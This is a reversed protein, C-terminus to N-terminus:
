NTSCRVRLGNTSPEIGERGVVRSARAGIADRRGSAAKSWGHAPQHMEHAELLSGADLRVEGLEHNV